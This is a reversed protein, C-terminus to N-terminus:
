PAASLGVSLKKFWKKLDSSASECEKDAVKVFKADVNTFTAKFQLM